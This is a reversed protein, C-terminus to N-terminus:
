IHHLKLCNACSLPYIRKEASDDASDVVNNVRKLARGIM